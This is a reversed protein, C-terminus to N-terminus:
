IWCHHRRRHHSNRQSNHCHLLSPFYSSLLDSFYCSSLLLSFLSCCHKQEMYRCYGTWDCRDNKLSQGCCDCAPSCCSCGMEGGDAAASVRETARPDFLWMKAGNQRSLYSVFRIYVTKSLNTVNNESLHRSNHITNGRFSSGTTFEPSRLSRLSSDQTKAHVIKFM